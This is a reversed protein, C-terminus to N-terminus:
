PSQCSVLVSSRIPRGDRLAPRFQLAAIHQRVDRTVVSDYVPEADPLAGGYNQFILQLAVQM